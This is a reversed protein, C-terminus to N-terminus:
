DIGQPRTLMLAVRCKSENIHLDNLGHNCHNWVGRRYFPHIQALPEEQHLFWSKINCDDRSYLLVEPHVLINLYIANVILIPVLVFIDTIVYSNRAHKTKLTLIRAGDLRM